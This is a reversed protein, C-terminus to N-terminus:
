HIDTNTYEEIMKFVTPDDHGLLDLKLVSDHIARYDLHTTKWSGSTDNAPYNIPTFDEVDFEKPIIIVGGAHQGTTRKVDMTKTALFDLYQNSWPKEGV